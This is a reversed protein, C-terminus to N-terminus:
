VVVPRASSRAEDSPAYAEWAQALRRMTEELVPPEATYPLRLKRRDEGTPSMLDGPIVEVGFRLAVQTYASASGSPLEVWLSPGGKPRRWQWSPLLDALLGSVLELNRNLMVRHDVRMQELHPVIRAAVAQDFLPSGLDNMAKLETMRGILAAPGRMWGVRLGGWAAKSFSGATLVPADPPAYAAVPPLRDDDLPANELANDEVLPIGHEAVLEALDRRRNAALLAGTPNHFTPMVYILSPDGEAVARAVGRVDVGDDDVPVVTVQAGRARIVDLTGSFSPSEVIVEDGARVLLQAALNVAQQAGTTIVVQDPTTPTGLGSLREALVERLAPLGAPLYGHHALLKDGDATMVERAAEAVRPHAPFTACALSIVDDRVDILTRYVPSVTFSDLADPPREGLARSPIRTGSGQRSEVVGEARLTDYATVVTSRSVALRLALDRESPLREGAPLRGQGVATRLADSLKRHLPGSGESWMGLVTEISQSM